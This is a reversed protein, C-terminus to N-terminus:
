KTVSEYNLKTHIIVNHHLYHSVTDCQFSINVSVTYVVLYFRFYVCLGM